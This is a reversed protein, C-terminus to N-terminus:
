FNRAPAVNLSDRMWSAIGQQIWTSSRMELAEPTLLPILERPLTAEPTLLPILERPLTALVVAWHRRTLPRSFIPWLEAPVLFIAPEQANRPAGYRRHFNEVMHRQMRRRAWKARMM